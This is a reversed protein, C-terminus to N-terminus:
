ANFNVYKRVKFEVGLDCAIKRCVEIDAAPLFDLVTFQVKGVYDKCKQAFDLVAPFADKGFVSHCLADYEEANKANLSISISDVLSKFRPTVDTNHIKNALGNTNIRIPINSKKKVAECVEVVRDVRELPEGYGCFVLEEYQDMDRRFIDQVIEEATPEKVLWLADEFAGELERVCFNCANSCRNTINIYLNNGIEYTITM